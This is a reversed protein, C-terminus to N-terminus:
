TPLFQVRSWYAGAAECVQIQAANIIIIFVHKGLLLVGYENTLLCIRCRSYGLTSLAVTTAADSAFASADTSVFLHFHQQRMHQLVQKIINPTTAQLWDMSVPISLLLRRFHALPQQM